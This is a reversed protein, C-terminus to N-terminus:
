ALNEILFDVSTIKAFEDKLTALSTQHIMEADFFNGDVGVKDFAATADALITVAFGLNAAMRATTSVCHETTLGVLILQDIKETTLRSQLDTGIFASNVEKGIVPEHTLPEVIQKIENGPKSPHLPSDKHTSNHKVHFVPWKKARFLDLIKRCNDEANPNNRRGGYYDLQDLGQQIDILLLAKRTITM